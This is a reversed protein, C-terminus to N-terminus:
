GILRGGVMGVLRAAVFGLSRCRPGAFDLHNGDLGGAGARAAGTMARRYPRTLCDCAKGGMVVIFRSRRPWQSAPLDAFRSPVIVDTGARRASFGEIGHRGGGGM